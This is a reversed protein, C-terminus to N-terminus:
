SVEELLTHYLECFQLFRAGDPLAELQTLLVHEAEASATRRMAEESTLACLDPTGDLLGHMLAAFRRETKGEEPSIASCDKRIQVACKGGRASRNRRGARRLLEDPQPQAARERAM